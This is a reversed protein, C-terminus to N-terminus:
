EKTLYFVVQLSEKLQITGPEFSSNQSFDAAQYRAQPFPAAIATPTISYINGLRQPIHDTIIRAKVKANIIAKQLTTERLQKEKSSTLKTNNIKAVKADIISKILTDYQSLDRLTASIRRTVETGAYIQDRKNWNYHPTIQLEASNIDEPQINLSKLTTILARSRREVNNKAEEVEMGVKTLSLSITLIDPVAQIEADGTVVIHPANPVSSAFGTHVFLLLFIAPLIHYKMTM